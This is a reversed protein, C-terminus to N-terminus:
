KIIQIHSKAVQEIPLFHKKGDVLLCVYINDIAIVYGQLENIKVLQGLELNKRTYFSYLLQSVIDKAGLGLSLAVTLLIAGVIISINNTIIDTNIGLQNLTTIAVFVFVFYFLVNGIIRAGSFDIAKLLGVVTKKIWSAFYVGAGFILLAVFIKPIYLMLDGIEKSVVSLGFMEAGIVIMLFILFIRFFGILINSISINFNLKGLLENEKLIDDLRELRILGFIKRIIFSTIKLVAWCIALYGLALLLGIAGKILSSMISSMLENPYEFKNLEM